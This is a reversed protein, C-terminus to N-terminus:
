KSPDGLDPLGATVEEFPAIKKSPEPPLVAPSVVGAQSPIKKSEDNSEATGKPGTRPTKPKIEVTESM